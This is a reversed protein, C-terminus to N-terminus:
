TWDSWDNLFAVFDRSDREGDGNFDPRENIVIAMDRSDLYGDGNIDPPPCWVTRIEWGDDTSVDITAPWGTIYQCGVLATGVVCYPITM